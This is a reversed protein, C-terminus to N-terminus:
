EKGQQHTLKKGTGDCDPCKVFHWGDCPQFCFDWHSKLGFKAAKKIDKFFRVIKRIPAVLCRELHAKGWLTKFPETQESYHIPVWGTGECQGDCCTKQDPYPIGMAKYRDTFELIPKM